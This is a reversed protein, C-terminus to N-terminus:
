HALWGLYDPVVTELIKALSSRAPPALRYRVTLEDLRAAASM